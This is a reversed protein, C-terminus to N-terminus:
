LGKESERDRGHGWSVGPCAPHPERRNARKLVCTQQGVQLNIKLTSFFRRLGEAVVPASLEDADGDDGDMYGGQSTSSLLAAGAGTATSATAAASGTGALPAGPVPQWGGVSSQRATGAAVPLLPTDVSGMSAYSGTTSKAASAPVIRRASVTLQELTNSPALASVRGATATNAMVSSYPAATPPPTSMTVAYRQGDAAWIGQYTLVGRGTAPDLRVSATSRDFIFEHGQMDDGRAHAAGM